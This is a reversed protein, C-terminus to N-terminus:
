DSRDEDDKDLDADYGDVIERLQDRMEDPVEGQAGGAIWRAASMLAAMEYVHMEVRLVTPRPREIKM